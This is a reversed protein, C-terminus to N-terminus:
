RTGETHLESLYREVLAVVTKPYSHAVDVDLGDRALLVALRNNILSLVFAAVLKYYTIDGDIRGGFELYRDITGDTDLVGPMRAFGLAECLFEEFMLWWGLDIEPPGTTATEWDFLAAVSMDDAFSMNGVRADGWVVGDRDTAPAETMIVDFARELVDAGVVLDERAWEYSRRLNDLYRALGTTGTAPDARLFNLLERDDVQHIAVLSKIANDCLLERESTSLETTWGRKHWSPVDSPTRGTVRRMLYFPAGLISDDHEIWVIQPVAIGASRGLRQMIEAQRPADPETFLQHDSAQMRLVLDVEQRTGTTDTWNATFFVTKGSYGADPASFDSIEFGTGGPAVREPLWSDLIERAGGGLEGRTPTYVM